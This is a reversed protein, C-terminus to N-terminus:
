LQRHSTFLYTKDPTWWSYISVKSGKIMTKGIRHVIYMHKLYASADRQHSETFINSNAIPHNLQATSANSLYQSDTIAFLRCSATGHRVPSSTPVWLGVEGTSVLDGNYLQTSQLLTLLTTTKTLVCVCFAFDRAAMLCDHRGLSVSLHRPVQWASLAMSTFGGLPSTPVWFGVQAEGMVLFHVATQCKNGWTDSVCMCM